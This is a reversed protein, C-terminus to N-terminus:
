SQANEDVMMIDEGTGGYYAIQHEAHLVAMRLIDDFVTKLLEVLEPDNKDYDVPDVFTYNFNVNISGDENEEDAFRVEDFYFKYGKYKGDVIGIHQFGNTAELLVNYIKREDMKNKRQFLFQTVLETLTM